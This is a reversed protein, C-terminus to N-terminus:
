DRPPPPPVIGDLEFAEVRAAFAVEANNLRRWQRDLARRQGRLTDRFTENFEVERLHRAQEAALEEMMILLRSEREALEQARIELAREQSQATEERAALAREREELSPAPVPAPAAM